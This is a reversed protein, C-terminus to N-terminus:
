LSCTTRKLVHGGQRQRPRFVGFQTHIYNKNINASIFHITLSLSNLAPVTCQSLNLLVHVRWVLKEKSQVCCFGFLFVEGATKQVAFIQLINVTM